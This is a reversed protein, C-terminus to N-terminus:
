PLVRIFEDAGWNGVAVRPLDLCDDGAQVSRGVTTCALTLGSEAVAARVKDDYDGFPYAFMTVPRNLLSECVAKSGAIERMLDAGDLKPLSPHHVTHAGVSFVGNLQQLEGTTLPRLAPNEPRVDLMDALHAIASDRHSPELERLRSWIMFHVERRDEVVAVEWTRDPLPIFLTAPLCDADMIIRELRDWWYSQGDLASTMLFITAPVKYYELIPKAIALNNAYGDDFTIAAYRGPVRGARVCRGLEELPVVEREAALAEIQSAFNNPSVSLGWIDSRGHRDDISHYMLIVPLPM